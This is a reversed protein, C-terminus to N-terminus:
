SSAAKKLYNLVRDDLGKNRIKESHGHSAFKASKLERIPYGGFHERLMNTSVSGKRIVLIEAPEDELPLRIQTHSSRIEASRAVPDQILFDFDVRQKNNVYNILEDLDFPSKEGHDNLSSVGVHSDPNIYSTLGSINRWASDGGPFFVCVTPESIWQEPDSSKKQSDEPTTIFVDKDIMAYSAVPLITHFPYKGFFERRKGLDKLFKFDPHIKSYDVVNDHQEPSMMMPVKDLVGRGRKVEWFKKSNHDNVLPDDPVAILVGIVGAELAGVHGSAIWEAIQIHHNPNRVSLVPIRKIGEASKVNLFPYRKNKSEDFEVALSQREKIEIEKLM